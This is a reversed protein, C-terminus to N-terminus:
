PLPACAARRSRRLSSAGLDGADAGSGGREGAGGFQALAAVAYRNEFGAREGAAQVGVADGFVLQAGGVAQAFHIQNFGHADIEAEADRHAAVDGDFIQLAFVGGDEDGDAESRGLRQIEGAFFEFADDVRQTEDGVVLGGLGDRDAAADGDDASSIGRDVGGVGGLAQASGVDVQDVAAALALHGGELEFVFVRFELADLEAQLRLGDRNVGVGGAAADGREFAEVHLEPRGIGGPASPGLRNGFEFKRRAHSM